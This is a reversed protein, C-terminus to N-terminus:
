CSVPPSYGNTPCVLSVTGAQSQFGNGNVQSKQFCYGTNSHYQATACQSNAQCLAACAAYSATYIGNDLTWGASDTDCQVNCDGVQLNSTCGNGPDYTDTGDELHLQNQSTKKYCVGISEHYQATACGGDSACLDGCGDAFFIPIGWDM